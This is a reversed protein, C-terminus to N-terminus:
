FFIPTRKSEVFNGLFLWRYGVELLIYEMVIKSNKKIASEIDKGIIPSMFFTSPNRNRLFSEATMDVPTIKDVLKHPINSFYDIFRFPVDKHELIVENEM